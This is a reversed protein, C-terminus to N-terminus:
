HGGHWCGAGSGVHTGCGGQGHGAHNAEAHGACGPGAHAPCTTCDARRCEGAVDCKGDKDQDKFDPCDSCDDHCAAAEDAHHAGAPDCSQPAPACAARQCSARNGAFPGAGQAYSYAAWTVVSVLTVAAAFLTVKRM